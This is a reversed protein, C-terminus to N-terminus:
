AAEAAECMKLLTELTYRADNGGNHPFRAEVGYASAAESLSLRRGNLLGTMFATDFWDTEPIEVLGKLYARDAALEHGVVCDACAVFGNLWSIADSEDMVVSEGFEFPRREPIMAPVLHERGAIVVHHSITEGSQHTTVGFEILLDRCGVQRYIEVDVAVFKQGAAFCEAARRAHKIFRQRSERDRAIRKQIKRHAGLKAMLRHLAAVQQDFGDRTIDGSNAAQHLSGIRHRISRQVKDIDM